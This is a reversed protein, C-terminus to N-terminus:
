ELQLYGSEVHIIFHIEEEEEELPAAAWMPGQGGRPQNRLSCTVTSIKFM